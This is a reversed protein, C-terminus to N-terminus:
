TIVRENMVQRSHNFANSNCSSANGTFLCFHEFSFLVHAIDAAAGHDRHPAFFPFTQLRYLSVPLLKTRDTQSIYVAIDQLVLIYLNLNSTFFPLEGIVDRLSKKSDLRKWINKGTDNLTFLEDEMDGMGSILPVIILEGEIERSVIDESPVYVSDLNVRTEM